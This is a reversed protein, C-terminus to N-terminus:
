SARRTTRDSEGAVLRFRTEASACGDILAEVSHTGESSVTLVCQSAIVVPLPDPVNSRQADRVFVFERPTISPSGPGHVRLEVRHQLREDSAPVSVRVAVGVELKAGTRLNAVALRDWCGGMLYLKGGSVEARDALLIFEIHPQSEDPM